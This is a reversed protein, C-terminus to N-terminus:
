ERAGAGLYTDIEEAARRGEGIAQVVTTGGNVADGAAWVGPRTTALTEGDTEILGRASLAVGGLIEALGALAQEGIAEVVLDAALDFESGAVAEPRRRGDAAPPGLETRVVRVARLRGSEDALYEMPQCLLMLHVGAHLAEDRERPWAPMEQYSRRYLLFVDQAGSRKACLAADVASNGGGVVVVRPGCIHDVNANMQQLFSNADIVGEPLDRGALSASNGLGFALVVADFGDALVDDLTMKPGLGRGFQWTAREAPVKAFVARIESEALAPTLRQAPIVSGLKGGMRRGRDFVTVRHGRRLLEAAAALGGPGAGVIAVHRGTCDLPVELAAWGASVARHSLRRQIDAIPLAGDGIYNQICASQCQVEVPCVIGCIEPLINARMLIRYAEREDGEALAGLFGPIDVSAPCRTVCMADPCQRCSSAMERLRDPDSHRGERFIPGYVENDRVVCGARGHDRMIQTCSSCAVCVSHRNMEGNHIIDRAFNPYALVGRGLGAIGAWGANIIGAAFQPFYQRLWSYGSGVVTLAPHAQQIDRAVHIIREVGALPDEPPDPWDAIMWDAPRNVHPNFYPNGVSVNVGGFGEDQLEGLLRIPEALDPRTADDRDVGWGYPYAIADYCNMRSTVEISEGVAQRIKRVTERIMRTRNEYSGGYRSNERTFSALLESLLYRHCSKVDVADFGVQAALVASAVFADQLADLQEDSILPYDSPLSHTPDLIASHHAIIPAAADVPKSYRGSHTLQLVCVPRHGMAEDAAARAADVMAKFAPATEETLMIQYPNARAEPVVACAEWWLLGAGGAAFRCYKRVTLDSPAGNTLGDCGEMPQAAMRNPVTLRGFAIPTALVSIDDSVPLDIGRGALDKTLEDLRRYAFRQTKDM